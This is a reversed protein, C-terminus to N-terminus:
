TLGDARQLCLKGHDSKLWSVGVNLSTTQSAANYVFNSAYNQGDVTLSSLRSAIDYNHHVVKRPSGSVGLERKPYTVDKIRDLTDYAYDTDMSPRGNVIVGKTAVRGESDYGYTESSVTGATVGALQTVDKLDTTSGKQRYSYSVTSASLIPNGTDGFGSTDWSVSQLRNLPDGNYTYITKVGRADTRSTLNSREDYTFLDSWTGSGVYTGSDNLTASKEALKQATLRRLSDYKFSRTQAGQTIGTLNGLANYSYTTAFGATAVSGNGSPNPEVVEVLRGQADTRGWRERGWADQVRRTEGSASSAVDPRTAENYFTQTTSGDPATTTKARGLADYTFTTWQLTDGSRYPRSQQSVQGMNNFVTDAFDWINNAGLAQEQRVQGLGNLVKVNQDAIAGGDSAALHTTETVTM